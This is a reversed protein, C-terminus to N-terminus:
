RSGRPDAPTSGRLPEDDGAPSVDLLIARWASIFQTMYQEREDMRMSQTGDVHRCFVSHMMMLGSAFARCQVRPTTPPWMYECLCHHASRPMCGKLPRHWEVRPSSLRELLAVPAGVVMTQRIAVTVGRVLPSTCRQAPRAWSAWPMAVASHHAAESCCSMFNRIHTPCM